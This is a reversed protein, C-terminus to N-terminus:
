VTLDASPVVAQTYFCKRFRRGAQLGVNLSTIKQSSNLIEQWGSDESLAESFDLYVIGVKFSIWSDTSITKIKVEMVEFGGSDKQSNFGPQRPTQNWNSIAM